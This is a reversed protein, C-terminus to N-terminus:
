FRGENCHKATFTANEQSLFNSVQCTYQHEDLKGGLSITLRTGPQVKEGSIWIFQLPSPPQNLDEICQLVASSNSGPIMQCTITPKAVKETHFYLVKINLINLKFHDFHYIESTVTQLIIRSCLRIISVNAILSIM